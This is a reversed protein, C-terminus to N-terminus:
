NFNKSMYRVDGNVISLTVNIEEDFLVIDADKGPELTGKSDLLGAIRAPTATMMKVAELLPVEGEQMMTRLLRDATAVSGAFATRDPLKAVGDEVLVRLGRNKNGLVSERVDTGAARMADTVLAIRDPGKIKYILKLLPAPVHVGDAIIEVDMEDILYCAEIAGAIRLANKRTVTSMASYFHTALNYGVQFGALVEDYTADTHALALMKGCSKVYRGFELAGPLEPAASWRAIDDSYALVKTYEEPDPHRIYAPDQAGRQELAFYPGELHVGIFQAGKTNQIDAERYADLIRYLDVLESTLTTPSLATTGFRVHTEAVRLFAEVTGDMFDAGGGGHVHLDIFGPSVYMGKADIREVKDDGYDATGLAAIRKGEIYLTHGEVIGAPTIIRGNVIIKKTLGM